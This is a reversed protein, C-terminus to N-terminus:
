ALTQPIPNRARDGRPAMFINQLLGRLRGRGFGEFDRLDPSSRILTDADVAEGLNITVNTELAPMELVLRELASASGASLLLGSVLAALRASFSAM